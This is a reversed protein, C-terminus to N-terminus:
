ATGDRLWGRTPGYRGFRTNRVIRWGRLFSGVVSGSLFRCGYELIIWEFEFVRAALGSAGGEGDTPDDLSELVTHSRLSKETVEVAFLRRPHVERTAELRVLRVIPENRFNALTVLTPEALFTFPCSPLVLLIGWAMETLEVKTQRVHAFVPSDFSFAHTRQFHRVVDNYRHVTPFVHEVLGFHLRMATRAAGFVAGLHSLAILHM